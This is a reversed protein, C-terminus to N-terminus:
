VNRWRRIINGREDLLAIGDETETFRWNNAFVLDGVSLQTINTISKANWDKDTDIELQSLKTIGAAVGQPPYSM